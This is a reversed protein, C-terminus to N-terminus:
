AITGQDTFQAENLERYLRYKRIYDAVPEPVLTALRDFRGERVTQRIETASVDVTAADTVFVGEEATKLARAIEPPALGRLDRVRKIVEPGVHAISLNYGPRTVVIHSTMTLVREWERWTTIEGWSDAGMLFFLDAAGSREALFHTLTGVTYCRDNADLEYTSVYLRPYNQTALALMAYRHLAPTVDLEQKHPARQAPVFLVEDLEFLTAVQEAVELHGSHVPDFTGGYIAIRKRRDM